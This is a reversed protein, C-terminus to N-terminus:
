PGCEWRGVFTRSAGDARDYTLTAPIPPSEGGGVAPATLTIRITKGAGSYTAGRLAAGFGGPAAVREVSDLVKVLGQSPKRSAVDGKIVLLPAATDTVFACGLEGPLNAAEIEDASLASLQIASGDGGVTPSEPPTPVQPAPAPGVAAPPAADRVAPAAPDTAEGSCAALSLVAAAAIWPTHRRRLGVM